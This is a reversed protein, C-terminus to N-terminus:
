HTSGDGNDIVEIDTESVSVEVADHVAQLDVTLPNQGAAPVSAEAAQSLLMSESSSSGPALSTAASAPDVDQLDSTRTSVSALVDVVEDADSSATPWRSASTSSAALGVSPAAYAPVLPAGIIACVATIAIVVRNLVSEM